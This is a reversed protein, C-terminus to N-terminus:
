SQYKRPVGNLADGLTARMFDAQARNEVPFATGYFVNEAELWVAYVVPTQQFLLDLFESCEDPSMVEMKCGVEMALDVLEEMEDNTM